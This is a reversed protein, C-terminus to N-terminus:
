VKKTYLREGESEEVFAFSVSEALSDMESDNAYCGFKCNGLIAGSFTGFRVLTKKNEGEQVRSMRLVRTNAAGNSLANTVALVAKERDFFPAPPAPAPPTSPSSASKQFSVAAQILRALNADDPTNMFQGVLLCFAREKSDREKEDKSDREKETKEDKAKPAPAPAPTPPNIEPNTSDASNWFVYDGTQPKHGVARYPKGPNEKALRITEQKCADKQPAAAYTKIDYWQGKNNLTQISFLNRKRNKSMDNEEQTPQTPTDDSVQESMPVFRSIEPMPVPMPEPVATLSAPFSVEIDEEAPENTWVPHTSGDTVVVLSGPNQRDFNQASLIAGQM